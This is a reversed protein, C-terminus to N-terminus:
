QLQFVFLTFINWIRWFNTLNTLLEDSIRWTRWIENKVVFYTTQGGLILFILQKAWWFWSFLNNQSGTLVGGLGGVFKVFKHCVQPVKSSSRVFKVFKQCVQRVESSSKVFKQRVESASKVFKQRVESSRKAFKQNVQRVESSSSSRGCCGALGWVWSVDLQCEGGKIVNVGLFDELLLTEGEPARRWEKSTREAM